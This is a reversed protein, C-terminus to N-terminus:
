IRMNTVWVPFFTVDATRSVLADPCLPLGRFVKPVMSCHHKLPKSSDKLQAEMIGLSPLGGSPQVYTKWVPKPCAFKTLNSASNKDLKGDSKKKGGMIGLSALREADHPIM